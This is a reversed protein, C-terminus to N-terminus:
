SGTPKGITKLAVQCANPFKWDIWASVIRECLQGGVRRQYEITSPPIHYAAENESIRKDIDHGIRKMYEMVIAWTATFMERWDERKMVFMSGVHLKRGSIFSFWAPFFEPLTEKIVETCIDLDEVNAFSAYQERITRGLDRATTTVCGHRDVLTKLDPVNDMWEFYRRYQCFGIIESLNKRRSVRRMTLLESFFAGLVGQYLDGGKRADMVEYVPSAVPLDFDKHACVYIRVEKPDPTFWLSRRRELWEQQKETVNGDWSGKGYHDIYDSVKITKGVLQPKMKRVDDLLCAGTDFWNAANNIDGQLMWCRKPDYFRAGAAKLKPVNMYLLFPLLRDAVPYEHGPYRRIEGVDSYEEQWLPRIDKKVITDSELLIFGDPIADWLYQVSMCHKMSGFNSQIAHEVIRDPFKELETDFDILQQRTNDLVKVGKMKKTFPRKDSNDLLIVPWACGTKRLSLICAETLEPTNFHIIAITQKM